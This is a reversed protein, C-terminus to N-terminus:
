PELTQNGEPNALRGAKGVPKDPIEYSPSIVRVPLSREKRWTIFEALTKNTKALNCKACSLTINRLYSSGGRSVPTLHEVHGGNDLPADCFRCRNNLAARVTVLDSETYAGGSEETRELRLKNRKKVQDPNNATHKATNAAMCERCSNRYGIVVNGNSRTNKFQGFYDRTEPLVRGCDKCAKTKEM